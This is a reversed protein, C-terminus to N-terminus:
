SLRLYTEGESYIMIIYGWTHPTDQERQERERQEGGRQQGGGAEQDGGGAEREQGRAEEGQGRDPEGHGRDGHELGGGQDGHDPGSLDAQGQDCLSEVPPVGRM